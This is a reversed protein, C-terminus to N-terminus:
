KPIGTSITALGKTVFPWTGGYELDWENKTSWWEYKLNYWILETEKPKNKTLIIVGVNLHKPADEYSPIRPGFMDIMEQVGFEVINGYESQDIIDDYCYLGAEGASANYPDGKSDDQYFCDNLSMGKEDFTYYRKNAVEPSKFGMMYLLIDDYREHKRPNRPVMTFTGDNNSEIQVENWIGNEDKVRVSNPWGKKPDWLPGTMVNSVTSTSNIHMRDQSNWSLGKGPFDAKSPGIGMWHGFEHNLGNMEPSGNWINGKLRPYDNGGLFKDPCGFDVNEYKYDNPNNWNGTWMGTGCRPDGYTMIGQVDDRVRFYGAGGYYKDPVFVLHDFVDGFELLVRMGAISNKPNHLELNRGKYVYNYEDGLSYFLAYKTGFLGDGYDEYQVTGRLESNIVLLETNSFKFKTVKDTFTPRTNFDVLDSTSVGSKSFLGDGAIDDGHTGDDYLECHPVTSQKTIIKFTEGEFIINPYVRAQWEPLNKYLYQLEQQDLNEQSHPKANADRYYKVRSNVKKLYNKTEQFPLRDLLIQFLEQSTKKNVISVSPKLFMAGSIAKAVNGPGTNYASITCYDSSVDNIINKFYVDKLKKIYACGLEINNSPEYLYTGTLLKDKKYIYNYADRGGSKPVLQMLGYAPIHSRAKPNFSSETHIIAFVIAPDIGFRESQKFIEDKYREVRKDLHSPLMNVKLSYKLRKKGDKSKIKKIKLSQKKVKEQTFNSINNKNVYQGSKNKLQDKLLIQKDFTDKTIVQSLKEKLKSIAESDKVKNTKSPNDDVLVEIEIKGKEFDVSGRSNINEDYEVYTKNSSYRFSDWKKEVADKFIKYYEEQQSVYGEFEATVSELYENEKSAMEILEAEQEKLWKEYDNQGFLFSCIIFIFLYIHKFM